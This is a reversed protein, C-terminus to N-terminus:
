AVQQTTEGSVFDCGALFTEFVALPTIVALAVGCVVATSIGTPDAGAINCANDSIVAAAKNVYFDFTAQASRLTSCGAICLKGNEITVDGAGVGGLAFIKNFDTSTPLGDDTFLGRSSGRLHPHAQELERRQGGTFCLSLCLLSNNLM